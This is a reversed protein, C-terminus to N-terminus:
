VTDSSSGLREVLFEEALIDNISFAVAVWSEVLDIAVLNCVEIGVDSSLRVSDTTDGDGHTVDLTDQSHTLGVGPHM